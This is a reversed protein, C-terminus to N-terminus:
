KDIEKEENSDKGLWAIINLRSLKTQNVEKYTSHEKITAKIEYTNGEEFKAFSTTDWIFVKHDKDEFKHVWHTEGRFTLHTEYFFTTLYTLVFYGREGVTGVFHSEPKPFMKKEWEKKMEEVRKYAEDYGRTGDAHETTIDEFKVPFTNPMEHDFHWGLTPNWRAGQEKLEDKIKYTDGVVVYAIGEESFGESLMFKKNKAPAEKRAKALRRENLIKRYEPTYVKWSTSARGSGGCKYCVGGEVYYYYSLVGSGGCKPCIDSCWYQTGNKDTRILTDGM